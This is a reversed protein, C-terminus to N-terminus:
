EQKENITIHQALDYTKTNPILPSTFITVGGFGISQRTYTTIQQVTYKEVIKLQTYTGDKAIRTLYYVKERGDQDTLSIPSNGSFIYPSENPYKRTLPDVSLWQGRRPDYGRELFAIQNGTGKVDNDNEKGNFGYRYSGSSTSRQPM